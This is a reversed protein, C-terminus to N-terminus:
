SRMKKMEVIDSPSPENAFQCEGTKLKQHRVSADPTIAFILKDINGHKGWYSPNNTFKIASDKAYSQFVFAGTGVPNNDIEAMKGAAQLKTAYEESLISM